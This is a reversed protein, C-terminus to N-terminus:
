RDRYRQANHTEIQTQTNEPPFNSFFFPTALITLFFLDKYFLPSLLGRDVIAYFISCRSDFSPLSLSVSFYRKPSAINKMKNKIKNKNLIPLQM